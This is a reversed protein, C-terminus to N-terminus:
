PAKAPPTTPQVRLLTSIRSEKPPLPLIIKTEVWEHQSQKKIECRFKRILQPTVVSYQAYNKNDYIDQLEACRYWSDPEQVQGIFGVLIIQLDNCHIHLPIDSFDNNEYAPAEQRAQDKALALERVQLPAVLVSKQWDELVPGQTKFLGSYHGGGEKPWDENYKLGLSNKLDFNKNYLLVVVGNVQELEVQGDEHEVETYLPRQYSVFDAYAEALALRMEPTIGEVELQRYGSHGCLYYGGDLREYKFLHSTKAQQEPALWQQMDKKSLVVSFFADGPLFWNNTALVSRALSLCGLAVVFFAYSLRM